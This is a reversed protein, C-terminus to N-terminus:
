STSTGVFINVKIPKGEYQDEIVMFGGSTTLSNMKGSKSPGKVLPAVITVTKKKEDVTVKFM